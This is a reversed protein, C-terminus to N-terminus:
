NTTPQKKEDRAGDTSHDKVNPEDCIEHERFAQLRTFGDLMVTSYDPPYVAFVTGKRGADHGDRVM